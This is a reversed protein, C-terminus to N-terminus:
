ALRQDLLGFNLNQGEEILAAANPFGLMNLRYGIQVVIHAQSREVWNPALQYPVNIGGMDLGGGHIWVLVPLKGSSCGRPVATKPAFIALRLCDEATDNYNGGQYLFASEVVVDVTSQLYQQTLQFCGPPYSTATVVGPAPCAPVPPAFRLEGVPNEGYPIDSYIVLNPYEQPYYPAFTGTTTGVTQSDQLRKSARTIGSICAVLGLFTSRM